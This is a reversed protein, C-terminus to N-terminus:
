KHRMVDYTYNAHYDKCMAALGMIFLEKNDTFYKKIRKFLANEWDAIFAITEMTLYSDMIIRRELYSKITKTFFEKSTVLM